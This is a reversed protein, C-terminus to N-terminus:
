TALDSRKSRRCLLWGALAGLVAGALIWAVSLPVMELIVAGDNGPFNAEMGELHGGLGIPDRLEKFLHLLAYVAGAAAGLRVGWKV